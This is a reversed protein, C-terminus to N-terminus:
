EKRHQKFTRAKITKIVKRKEALTMRRQVNQIQGFPITVAPVEHRPLEERDEIVVRMPEMQVLEWQITSPAFPPPQHLDNESSPIDDLLSLPSLEQYLDELVPLSVSSEYPGPYIRTRIVQEDLESTEVDTQESSFLRDVSNIRQRRHGIIQNSHIQDWMSIQSTM